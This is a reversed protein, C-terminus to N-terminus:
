VLLQGNCNESLSNIIGRGVERFKLLEKEYTTNTNSTLSHYTATGLRYRDRVILQHLSQAINDHITQSNLDSLIHVTRWRYRTMLLTCFNLYWPVSILSVSLTTSLVAANIDMGVIRSINMSQVLRM